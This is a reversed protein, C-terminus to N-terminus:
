ITCRDASYRISVQQKQDDKKCETVKSHNQVRNMWIVSLNDENIWTIATYIYGDPIITTIFM